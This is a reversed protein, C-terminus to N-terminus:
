FSGQTLL